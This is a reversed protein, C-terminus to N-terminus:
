IALLIILLAITPIVLIQAVLLVIGRERRLIEAVV